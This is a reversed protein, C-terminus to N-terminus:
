RTLLYRCRHAYGCRLRGCRLSTRNRRHHADVCGHRQRQRTTGHLKLLPILILVDFHHYTSNMPNIHLTYPSCCDYRRSVDLMSLLLQFMQVLVPPELTYSVMGLLWTLRARLLQQSVNEGDADGSDLSLAGARPHALLQNLLTGAVNVVWGPIDMHQGSSNLHPNLSHRGPTIPFNPPLDHSLSRLFTTKFAQM